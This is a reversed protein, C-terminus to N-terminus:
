GRVAPLLPAFLISLIVVGGILSRKDLPEIGRSVAAVEHGDRAGVLGDPDKLVVPRAVELLQALPM